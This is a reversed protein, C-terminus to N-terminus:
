EWIKDIVKKWYGLYSEGPIQETISSINNSHDSLDVFNQYYKAIKMKLLLDLCYLDNYFSSLDSVSSRDNSNIDIDVLERPVEQYLTSIDDAM